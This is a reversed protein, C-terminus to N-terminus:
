GMGDTHVATIKLTRELYLESLVRAVPKDLASSAVDDFIEAGMVFRELYRIDVELEGRHAIQRCETLAIDTHRCSLDPSCFGNIAQIQSVM